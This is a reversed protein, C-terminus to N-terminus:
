PKQGALASPVPVCAGATEANAFVLKVGGSDVQTRRLWSAVTDDCTFCAAPDILFAVVTDTGAWDGFRAGTGDLALDEFKVDCALFALALSVLLM